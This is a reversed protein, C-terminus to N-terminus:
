SNLWVDPLLLLLGRVRDYHPFTIERTYVEYSPSAFRVHLGEDTERIATAWISSTKAGTDVRAHLIADDLPPFIVKEARAILTKTKHTITM